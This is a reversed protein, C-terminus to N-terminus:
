NVNGQFTLMTSLRHPLHVGVIAQREAAHLREQESSVEIVNACSLQTNVQLEGISEKSAGLTVCQDDFREQLVQLCLPLFKAPARVSM